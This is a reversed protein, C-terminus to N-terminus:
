RATRHPPRTSFSPEAGGETVGVLVRLTEHRRLMKVGTPSLSLVVRKRENAAFTYDKLRAAHGGPATGGRVARGDVFLELRLQCGSPNAVFYCWLEGPSLVIPADGKQLPVVSVAGGFPGQEGLFNFELRECDDNV